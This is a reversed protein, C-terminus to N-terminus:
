WDNGLVEGGRPTCAAWWTEDSISRSLTRVSGDALGVVMSTHPTSARTPDCNGLYPTPRVQFRSNPGVSFDERWSVAFAAHWPRVVEDTYWYAWLSGGEPWLANNCRAYKEAILLTNSTGDMIHSLRAAHQPNIMEWTVDDVKCFVQANIAYSCAGWPTSDSDRVVGDPDYSPDSPCLYVKVPVSAVKGPLAWLIERGDQLRVKAEKRLVDQELYPLLHFGATGYATRSGPPQWGIAPPLAGQEEHFNLFALTIQKVNNKCQAQALLERVKQVAPLFLGLLVAIIAIVVLLEILTFGGPRRRLSSSM